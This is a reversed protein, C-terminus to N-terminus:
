PTAAGGVTGAVGASTPEEVAFRGTTLDLNALGVQLDFQAGTLSTQAQFLQSQASTIDLAIGVGAGYRGRAVELNNQASAVLDRAVELRAIQGSVNIAASQVQADASKRLQGLRLRAAELEDRAARVSARRGGGNFVPISLSAGVSLTRNNTRRPDLNVNLSTTVSPRAEIRAAALQSQSQAIQASASALDPRRTRALRLLEESPAPEPPPALDNQLALPPGADLGIAQRLDVQAIRLANRATTLDFRAQSVNVQAGLLDSRPSTGATIQAQIQDLSQSAVVLQNQRQAVLTAQRLQEFFRQAVSYALNIRTTGLNGRSISESARSQRVSERTRGSDFLNQSLTIGTSFTTGTQSFVTSTGTTTPTTGGTTGINGGGTGNNGTPTGSGGTGTVPITGTNGTSITSSTNVYNEGVSVTLQPARASQAVTIRETAARLQQQAALVDGQNAFAIRLADRLSLPGAPPTTSTPPANQAAVGTASALLFLMPWARRLRFVFFLM